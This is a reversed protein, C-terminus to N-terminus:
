AKSTAKKLRAEAVAGEFKRLQDGDLRVKPDQVKRMRDAM